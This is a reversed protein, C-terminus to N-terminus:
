FEFGAERGCMTGAVRNGNQLVDLACDTEEYPEPPDYISGRLTVAPSRMLLATTASPQVAITGTQEITGTFTMDYSENADDDRQLYACARLVYTLQVETTGQVANSTANGYIRATGGRVCPITEDYSGVPKGQLTLNFVLKVTERLARLATGDKCQQDCPPPPPPAPGDGCAALGALVVALLVVRAFM